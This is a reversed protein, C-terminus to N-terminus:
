KKGGNDNKYFSFLYSDFRVLLSKLMNRLSSRQTRSDQIAFILWREHGLPHVSKMVRNGTSIHKPKDMLDRLYEFSRGIYLHSTRHYLFLIAKLVPM